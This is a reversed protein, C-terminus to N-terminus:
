HTENELAQRIIYEKVSAGVESGNFWLIRNWNRCWETFDKLSYKATKIKISKNIIQSKINQM